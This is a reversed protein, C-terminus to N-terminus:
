FIPLIGFLKKAGRLKLNIKNWFKGPLFIKGDNFCVKRIKKRWNIWIVRRRDTVMWNNLRLKFCKRRGYINYRRPLSPNWLIFPINELNEYCNTRGAKWTKNTKNTKLFWRPLRNSNATLTFFPYRLFYFIKIKIVLFNRGTSARHFVGTFVNIESVHIYEYVSHFIYNDDFTTLQDSIIKVNIKFPFRKIPLFRNKEGRNILCPSFKSFYFCIEM